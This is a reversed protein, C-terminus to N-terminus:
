GIRIVRNEMKPVLPHRDRQACVALDEELGVGFLAAGAATAALGRANVDISRALSLAARAGDNGGSRPLLGEARLGLLIHGGCLADDLSFRGEKGACILVAKEASALSDVVAGLNLFSAAMVTRAGEAALFARTGNTTSMVLERGGIREPAYERPSNGLDFGPVREGGREGCLLTADPDLAAARRVAERVSAAPHIARAGNALATVMTTTARIVDIVVATSAVIRHPEVERPTFYLDVRM